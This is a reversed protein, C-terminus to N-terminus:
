LPASCRHHRVKVIESTSLTVNGQEGEDLAVQRAECPPVGQADEGFGWTAPVARAVDRPRNVLRGLRRPADELIEGSFAEDLTPGVARGVAEIRGVGRAPDDPPEDVLGPV